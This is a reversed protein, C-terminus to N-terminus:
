RPREQEEVALVDALRAMLADRREHYVAQAVAGANAPAAYVRDLTAVDRAITDAPTRAVVTAAGRAVGTAGPMGARRSLVAGLAVAIVALALLAVRGSRGGMGTGAGRVTFTAGAPVTSSVYRQFSRGEMAVPAEAALSAGDISAGDGEVLVELTGVGAPMTVATAGNAPIEYTLVLQRPGPPFPVILEASREAFRFAEPPMDGGSSSGNRAGEPLDARWTAGGDRGVLTRSSDNVVEFVDVVRRVGNAAPALVFHRARVTMPFAVSTTDYVTVDAEPGRVAKDRLPATFYAVGDHRASVIYMTRPGELKYRFRYAGDAGSRVSDVPGSADASIRHLVVYAGAVPQPAPGGRLLRGEVTRLEGAVGPTGSAPPLEGQGAAPRAYAAMALMLASLALRRAPIM